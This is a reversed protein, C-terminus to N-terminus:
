ETGKGDAATPNEEKRKEDTQKERATRREQTKGTRSESPNNIGM